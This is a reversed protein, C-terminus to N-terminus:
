LAWAGAAKNNSSGEVYESILIDNIDAYAGASLVGGIALALIKKKM